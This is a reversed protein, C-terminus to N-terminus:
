LNFDVKVCGKSSTNGDQFTLSVSYSGSPAFGPITVSFRYNIPDGAQYSNTNPDYQTNLPTGNLYTVIQVQKLTVANNLTGLINIGEASGKSPQSDLAVSSVTLPDSGSGCNTFPWNVSGLSLLNTLTAKPKIDFFIRIVDGLSKGAGFYDGTKFVGNWVNELDSLVTPLNAGVREVALELFTMNNVDQILDAVVVEGNLFTEGCNNITENLFQSLVVIASGIENPNKTKIGDVIADYANKVNTVANMADLLCNPLTPIYANLNSGLYLGLAFQLLSGSDKVNTETTNSPVGLFSSSLVSVIFLSAIIFAKM